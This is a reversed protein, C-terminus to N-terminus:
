AIVRVGYLRMSSRDKFALTDTEIWRGSPLQRHEQLCITSPFFWHNYLAQRYCEEVPALTFVRNDIQHTFDEVTLAHNLHFQLYRFINM